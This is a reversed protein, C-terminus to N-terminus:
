KGLGAAMRVVGVAAVLVKILDSTQVNPAALRPAKGRDEEASRIFLAAAALGAVLGGAAGILLAKSKWNM